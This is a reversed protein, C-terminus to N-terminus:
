AEAAPAANRRGRTKPGQPLAVDAPLKRPRHASWGRAYGVLM